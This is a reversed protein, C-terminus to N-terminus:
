AQPSSLPVVAVDHFAAQVKQLVEDDRAYVRWLSSDFAEIGIECPGFVGDGPILRPISKKDKCGVIVADLVEILANAFAVLEDWTFILGQSSQRVQHEIELLNGKFKDPDSRAEL